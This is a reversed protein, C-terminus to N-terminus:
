VKSPFKDDPYAEALQRNPKYGYEQSFSQFYKGIEAHTVIQHHVPELNEQAAYRNSGDSVLVNYFPQKDKEDLKDVGMQSIWSQFIISIDLFTRSTKTFVERVRSAKCFPDWGYIVCIYNYKRHQCVQGVTYRAVGHPWSALVGRKKPEAKDENNLREDM